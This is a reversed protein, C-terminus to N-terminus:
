NNIIELNGDDDFRDYTWNRIEDLDKGYRAIYEKHEILKDICWERLIASKNGLQPLYNLADMALNFRDVKNQVRMDFPTTITGEEIYGHVHLNKNNRKYTLQHILSPYGHFAFIIPKDKTFIADYEEDSLGHPHNAPSQLKMLDVVNVVRVKLEKFNVRLIESAAIVELTPTDGCCALVIDPESGADNSAFEFIGLGKTCHKIAKDMSLWQVSPHKSAVIVNIYNKSKICHDFCSILCNADPPLYMRVIDAKKTVLHNLFGPDQHTFGNHDQQWVHSSLIYNLSAIDSRWSINNVVKLWKAHQSAMSDIIRIFAEYCHFFGHRGTLLYGELLGECFHESLYSDMIRGDVSLYEDDNLLSANWSRKDEEFIYNLRNSLAEDPGFVRFNDKNYKIIDRVYKGLEMMDQTIVGGPSDVNVEYDRFDPLKLDKLLLGGNGNPNAGMRRNGKPALEKLEPILKGEEDFLEEPHYSKLWEELMDLTKPDKDDITFPIQHARFSNEIKKNNVEKPGTWGKPTRLVIMPWKINQYENESRNKINKIDDLVKELAEAMLEHMVIPDDGEVFYPIWGNGKLYWRLEDKSIRSLVTPNAIKYGNLHLIPIVVGDRKPNLFKVGRWSTALPGTEAEGDGVVCAAILDPNDLVAGFAHALSYGLEGGENISGPTEPAVHSSVGGPFSFQKFLRRLGFEDETINPYFESYSGELYTNSVIANGGHGPGSIYIMNLDHEKIIRNLHVYIFNQGPVTGWHGVLKPKVDKISLKRKLLPNDMLYLQGVSLYNAARFYADIKNLMEDSLVKGM